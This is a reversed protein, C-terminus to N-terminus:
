AVTRIASVERALALQELARAELRRVWERSLGLQQGVEQLTMPEGDFGFRLRIVAQEREPLTAIARHLAEQELSVHIEEDVADEEGVLEGLERSDASGRPGVPEDLSAVTRAVGRIDALQQLSIKAAAALEEDTPARGLSATLESEVRGVKWEREAQHVPIRITRSQNHIAREIAQRIWWVAYTSFKFGRRWDFKEVARILGLVGEQILDLLSLRGQYRKAQSVVLRLNSTIMREKAEADGEEVRKALEVEEAATLLPYRGMEALFMGLTDATAASVSGNQYGVSAVNKGCDDDVRAGRREIEEFVEHTQEDDLGHAGVLDEVASLEVCDVGAPVLRDIARAVDAHLM